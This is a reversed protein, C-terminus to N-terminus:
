SALRKEHGKAKGSSHTDEVVPSPAEPNAAAVETEVPPPLAAPPTARGRSAPKKSQEPHKESKTPHEPPAKKEPKSPSKTQKNPKAAPKADEASKRGNESHKELGPAGDPREQQFQVPAPSGDGTPVDVSRVSPGPSSPHGRAISAPRRGVLRPQSSVTPRGAAALIGRSPSLSAPRGVNKERQPPSHSSRAELRTQQPGPDPVKSRHEYQIASTGLVAVAAVTGAAKLAGYAGASKAMGGGLAVGVGGSSGIAAHLLGAAAAAPLPPISALIGERSAVAQQFRRCDPCDRLHSRVDRRRTIRGDADSLIRAIADCKLNRGDGIQELNRRAEYLSQRVVAASADLARAIEAFDLGNLERLVLVTRQRDPLDALDKLLWGLQERQEVREAVGSHGDVLHDDLVQIPCRRRRLEVAENHAIRYLWPRLAIEREEGPLAKLVKVMTNQLADQADEPEGLIGLCFRYLEQQYREFIAAIARRDGKSARDALRRDSGPGVALRRRPPVRRRPAEPAGKLPPSPQELLQPPSSV